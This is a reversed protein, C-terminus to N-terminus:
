RSLERVRQEVKRSYLPFYSRVALGSGLASFHGYDAFLLGEPKKYLCFAERCFAPLPDVFTAHVSAARLVENQAPAVSLHWRSEGTATKGADRYDLVKVDFAFMPSQGIVYVKLGRARLQEVTDTLGDLGRARLQDWRATLVVTDANYRAAV